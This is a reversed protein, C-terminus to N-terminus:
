QSRISAIEPRQASTRDPNSRRAFREECHCRTVTDVHDFDARTYSFRALRSVAQLWAGARRAIRAGEVPAIGGRAVAKLVTALVQPCDM